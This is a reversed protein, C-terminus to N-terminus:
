TSRRTPAIRYVQGIEGSAGDMWNRWTVQGSDTLSTLKAPADCFVGVWEVPQDKYKEVLEKQHPLSQMCPPCWAAWFDLVVVKGKLEDLSFTEGHQDKGTIAPAPRGVRLMKLEYLLQEAEVGLHHEPHRPDSCLYIVNSYERQVRELAEIAKETDGEKDSAFYNVGLAYQALGKIDHVESADSLRELFTCVSESSQGRFGWLMASLRSDNRYHKVLLDSAKALQNECRKPDSAQLSLQCVVKLCTFCIPTQPHEEALTLFRDAYDPTPDRAMVLEQSEPSEATSFEYNFYQLKNQYDALIQQFEQDPGTVEAITEIEDGLEALLVQLHRVDAAFSFNQSHWTNIGIVEGKNDFLPGGSSGGAIAATTQLWVNDAPASILQRLQLPLEATRHVASLIGTTTTFKFQEPHGVSIVESAVPRETNNALELAFAQEPTSEIELIVLDAAEDYARIGKVPIREGSHFEVEARLAGRLVHFNSAVLGSQDILFGSGVGLTQQGNGFTSILVVGKSATDVIDSTSRKNGSASKDLDSEVTSIEETVTQKADLVDTAPELESSVEPVIDTGSTEKSRASPSDPTLLETQDHLREPESKSAQNTQAITSGADGNVLMVILICVLAVAIVSAVMFWAWSPISPGTQPASANSQSM